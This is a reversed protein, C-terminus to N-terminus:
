LSLLFSLTLLFSFRLNVSISASFLDTVLQILCLNWQHVRNKREGRLSVIILCSLLISASKWEGRLRGQAFGFPFPASHRSFSGRIRNVLFGARLAASHSHVRIFVLNFGRLESLAPPLYFTSLCFSCSGRIFASFPDIVSNLCPKGSRRPSASM